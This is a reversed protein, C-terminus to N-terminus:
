SPASTLIANSSSLCMHSHRRIFLRFSSVVPIRIVPLLLALVFHKSELRGRSSSCSPFACVPKSALAAVDKVIPTGGYVVCCQVNPFHKAFRDYENKIQFALERTHALVLVLPGKRKEDESAARTDLLHLTSLVFVATKGMGSKAQCVLDGGLIAQPIAEHQV